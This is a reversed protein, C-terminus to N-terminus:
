VAASPAARLFGCAEVIEKVSNVAVAEGNRVMENCGASGLSVEPGPVAMVARGLEAAARATGRSHSGEEVVVTGAGLCAVLRNRGVARWHSPSRGPAYESLLIGREGVGPVEESLPYDASLGCPLVAVTVGGEAAAGGYASESIGLSTGSVVTVGARALGVGLADGYSTGHHTPRSSGVMVVARELVDALSGSGRVWLGLPIGLRGAEGDCRGLASLVEGPWESDEPIVLRAGLHEAMAPYDLEAMADVPRVWTESMVQPPADMRRVQAAAKVPGVGAVYENLASGCESAVGMLYYRAARETAFNDM